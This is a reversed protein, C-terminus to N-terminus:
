AKKTEPANSQTNLHRGSVQDEAFEEVIMVGPVFTLAEAVSWSNDPNRRETTV